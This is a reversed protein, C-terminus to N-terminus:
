RRHSRALFRAKISFLLFFHRSLAGWLALSVHSQATKVRNRETHLSAPPEAAELFFICDNACHSVDDDDDSDRHTHCGVVSPVSSLGGLESYQVGRLESYQVGRLKSAALEVGRLKSAALESCQVGRDSGSTSLGLSGSSGSPGPSLFSLRRSRELGVEGSPDGFPEGAEPM